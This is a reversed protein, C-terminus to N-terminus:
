NILLKERRYRVRQLVKEKLRDQNNKAQLTIKPHLIRKLTAKDGHFCIFNDISSAHIMKMDEIIPADDESGLDLSSTTKSTIKSINDQFIKM